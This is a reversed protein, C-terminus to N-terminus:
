SVPATPALRMAPCPAATMVTLLPPAIELLEVNVIAVAFPVILLRLGDEACDPPRAKVRVTFPEPNLALEVIRHFPVGKGVLKKLAVWSVPATPALRMAVCPDAAIVTLVSPVTDLPEVKVIEGAVPFGVILLRLGEIACALPGANAKVTFPEPNVALEVMKHFPVAKAVVKPLAV